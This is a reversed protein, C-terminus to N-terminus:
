SAPRDPVGIAAQSVAPPAIIELNGDGVWFTYNYVKSEHLDEDSKPNKMM